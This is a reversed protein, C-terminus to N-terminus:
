AAVLNTAIGKRPDPKSVQYQILNKTREVIEIDKIYPATEVTRFSNNEQEVRSSEQAPREVNGAAATM